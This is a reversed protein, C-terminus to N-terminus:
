FLSSPENADACRRRLSPNPRIASTHAGEVPPDYVLHRVVDKGLAPPATLKIDVMVRM